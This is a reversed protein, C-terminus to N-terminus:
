QTGTDIVARFFFRLLTGMLRQETGTRSQIYPFCGSPCFRLIIIVRLFHHFSGSQHQRYGVLVLSVIVKFVIQHIHKTLGNCFFTTQHQLNNRSCVLRLVFGQKSRSRFTEQLQNQQLIFQQTGTAFEPYAVPGIHCSLNTLSRLFLIKILPIGTHLNGSPAVTRSGFSSVEM